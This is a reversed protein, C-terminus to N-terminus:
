KKSGCWETTVSKATKSAKAHGNHPAFSHREKPKRCFIDRVCFGSFDVFLSYPIKRLNTRGSFHEKTLNLRELLTM